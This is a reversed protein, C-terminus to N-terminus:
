SAFTAETNKASERQRILNKNKNEESFTIKNNNNNTRFINKQTSFFSFWM